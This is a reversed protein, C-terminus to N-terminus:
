IQRRKARTLRQGDKVEDSQKAYYMMSSELRRKHKEDSAADLIVNEAAAPEADSLEARLASKSKSAM